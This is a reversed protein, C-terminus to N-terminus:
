IGGVAVMFSDLTDKFLDHPTEHVGLDGWLFMYHARLDTTTLRATPLWIDGHLSTPITMNGNIDKLSREPPSLLGEATLRAMQFACVPFIMHGGLSMLPESTGVCAFHWSSTPVHVWPFKQMNKNTCPMWTSENEEQPSNPFSYVSYFSWLLSLCIGTVVSAIAPSGGAAWLDPAASEKRYVCNSTERFLLSVGKAYRKRQFCVTNFYEQQAAEDLSNSVLHHKLKQQTVTPLFSHIEDPLCFARILHCIQWVPTQERERVPLECDCSRLEWPSLCCILSFECVMPPTTCTATVKAM